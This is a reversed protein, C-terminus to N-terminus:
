LVDPGDAKNMSLLINWPSRLQPRALHPGTHSCCPVSLPLAPPLLPPHPSSLGHYNSASSILRTFGTDAGEALAELDLPGRGAGPIATCFSSHSEWFRECVCTCVCTYLETQIEDVLEGPPGFHKRRSHFVESTKRRLSLSFQLLKEISNFHFRKAYSDKNYKINRIVSIELPHSVM